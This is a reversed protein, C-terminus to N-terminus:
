LDFIYMPQGDWKGYYFGYWHGKLFSMRKKYPPRSHPEQLIPMLVRYGYETDQEIYKKALEQVWAYQENEIGVIEYFVIENKGSYRYIAIGCIIDGVTYSDNRNQSSLNQGLVSSTDSNM